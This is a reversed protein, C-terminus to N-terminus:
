FWDCQVVNVLFIFQNSEFSEGLSTPTAGIQTIQGMVVKTTPSLVDFRQSWISLTWQFENSLDM